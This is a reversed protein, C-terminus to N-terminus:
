PVTRAESWRIAAVNRSRAAYLEGGSFALDELEDPLSPHAFLYRSFQSDRQPRNGVMEFVDAGFEMGPRGGLRKKFPLNRSIGM